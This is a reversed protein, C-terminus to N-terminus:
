KTSETITEQLPPIWPKCKRSLSVLLFFGRYSGVVLIAGMDITAILEVVM